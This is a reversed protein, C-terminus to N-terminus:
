NWERFCILFHLNIYNFNRQSRPLVINEFVLLRFEQNYQVTKIEVLIWHPIQSIQISFCM